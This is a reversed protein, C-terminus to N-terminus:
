ALLVSARNRSVVTLVRDSPDCGSAEAHLVLEGPVACDGATLGVAYWGFGRDVVVPTIGAFAGGNKSISCSLTAGAVGLSRNVASVMLIMVTNNTLQNVSNM